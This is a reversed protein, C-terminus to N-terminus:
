VVQNFRKGCEQSHHNVSGSFDIEQGLNDIVRLVGQCLDDTQCLILKRYKEASFSMRAKNNHETIVSQCVLSFLSQNM